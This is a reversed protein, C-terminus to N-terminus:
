TTNWILSFDMFTVDSPPVFADPSPSWPSCSYPFEASTDTTEDDQTIDEDFMDVEYKIGESMQSSWIYVYEGDNIMFSDYNNDYMSSHMRFKDDAIFIEFSVRGDETEEEYVCQVPRGEMLLREVSTVNNEDPVVGNGPVDDGSVIDNDDDNVVDNDSGDIIITTNNTINDTVNSTNNEFDDNTECASVFLLVGLLLINLLLIKKM